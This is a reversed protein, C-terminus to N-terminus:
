KIFGYKKLYTNLEEKTVNGEKNETQVIGDIYIFTTPTGTVTLLNNFDDYESKQLTLLDLEYGTINNEKLVENFTPKYEICHSCYTQSIVIIFTRKQNILDKLEDLTVKEINSYERTLDENNENEEESSSNENSEGSSSNNDGYHEIIENEHEEIYDVTKNFITYFLFIFGIIGVIVVAAIIGVITLIIKLASDQKPPQVGNINPDLNQNM